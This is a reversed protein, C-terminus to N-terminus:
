QGDLNLTDAQSQTDDFPFFRLTDLKFAVLRRNGHIQPNLNKRHAFLRTVMRASTFMNMFAITELGSCSPTSFSASISAM